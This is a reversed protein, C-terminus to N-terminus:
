PLYHAEGAVYESRDYFDDGDGNGNGNRLLYGFLIEGDCNDGIITDVLEELRDWNDFEIMLGLGKLM